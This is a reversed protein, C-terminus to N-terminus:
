QRTRSLYLSRAPVFLFEGVYSITSSNINSPITDNKHLDSLDPKTFKTPLDVGHMGFLGQLFERPIFAYTYETKSFPVRPLFMDALQELPLM